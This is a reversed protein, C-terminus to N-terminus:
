KQRGTLISKIWWASDNILFKPPMRGMLWEKRSECIIILRSELNSENGFLLTDQTTRNSTAPYISREGMNIQRRKQQRMSNETSLSMRSWVPEPPRRVSITESASNYKDLLKQQFFRGLRKRDWRGCGCM